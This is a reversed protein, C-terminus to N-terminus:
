EWNKTVEIVERNNGEMRRGDLEKLAYMADDINKYEIVGCAVGSKVFTNAFSVSEGHERAIDKLEDWRMDPPLNRIDLKYVGKKLERHRSPTRYRKEDGKPRKTQSERVQIVGKSDRSWPKQDLEECAELGMKRDVFDVFCFVDRESSRIRVSSIQGFGQCWQRIQEETVGKPMGGMWATLGVPPPRQRSDDRRGSRRSRSRSRSRPRSGTKGSRRSYSRSRSRQSRREGKKGKGGKSAGKSTEKGASKNSESLKVKHGTELFEAQQLDQIADRGDQEHEFTVFAFVDRTSSRIHVDFVRGYQFFFELLDEETTGKPLGGCWVTLGTM